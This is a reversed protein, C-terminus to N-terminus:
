LLDFVHASACMIENVIKSTDCVCMCAHMCACVCLCLRMCVSVCLCLRVCVCVYMCLCMTFMGFTINNM